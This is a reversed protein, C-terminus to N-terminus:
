KQEPTLAANALWKQANGADTKMWQVVLKEVYQMVVAVNQSAM